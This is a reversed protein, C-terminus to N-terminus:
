FLPPKRGVAHRLATTGALALWQYIPVVWFIVRNRPDTHIFFGDLMMAIGFVATGASGFLLVILQRLNHKMKLLISSFGLYPALLWLAPPLFSRLWWGGGQLWGKDSYVIVELSFAAAGSLLYLSVGRIMRELKEKDQEDTTFIAAM